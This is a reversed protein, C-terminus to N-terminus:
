DLYVAIQEGAGDLLGALKEVQNAFHRLNFRHLTDPLSPAGTKKDEPYRFGESTSDIKSLQEIGETVAELQDMPEDPAVRELISRCSKWLPVLDHSKILETDLDLLQSGALVLHKMKLELYQRYCFVIPYVLFDQDVGSSNVHEVLLRGARRYGEAYISWDARPVLCANNHWDPLGDTFMTEGLTPWPLRIGFDDEETTM